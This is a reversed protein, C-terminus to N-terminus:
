LEHILFIGTTCCQWLVGLQQLVTITTSAFEKDVAAFGTLASTM